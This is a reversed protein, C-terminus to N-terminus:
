NKYYIDVRRNQAWAAEDSGSARPKTAGYSYAEMQTDKVGYLQLVVRVANSRRQGLALNYESGGREDTHGELFVHQDPHKVLYDAHQKLLAHFQEKVTYEDLDFYVSYDRFLKNPDVTVTNNKTVEINAKVDKSTVANSNNANANTRNELSPAQTATNDKFSIGSCASLTFAVAIIALKM